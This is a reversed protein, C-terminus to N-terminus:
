ADSEESALARAVAKRRRHYFLAMGGQYFISVAGVIAYVVHHLRESFQLLEEPTTRAMESLERLRAPDLRQRVLEPDYYALRLYVYLLITALLLVQSLVIWNMGRPESNRLQGVGHLEMAGAGAALCGILAGSLDGISASILAFFGAVYLLVRGDLTALRLVRALTEAPLLPPKNAM